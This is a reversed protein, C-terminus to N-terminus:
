IEAIVVRDLGGLDKVIRIEAEPWDHRILAIAQDRQWPDIEILTTLCRPLTRRHKKIDRYLRWYYDLGDPGAALALNPEYLRVDPQAKEIQEPTVKAM